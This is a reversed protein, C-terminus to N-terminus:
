NCATNYAHALIFLKSSADDFEMFDFRDRYLKYGGGTYTAETTTSGGAIDLHYVKYDSIDNAGLIYVNDNLDLSFATIYGM